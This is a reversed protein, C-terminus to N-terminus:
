IQIVGNLVVLLVTTSIKGNNLQNALKTICITVRKLYSTTETM